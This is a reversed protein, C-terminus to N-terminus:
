FGPGDIEGVIKRAEFCISCCLPNGDRGHDSAWSQFLLGLHLIWYLSQHVLEVVIKHLVLLLLPVFSSYCEHSM